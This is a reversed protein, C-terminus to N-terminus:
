KEFSVVIAPMYINKEGLLISLIISITFIPGLQDGLVDDHVLSATHIMESIIAVKRQKGIV